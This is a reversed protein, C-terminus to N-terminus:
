LFECFVVRVCFGLTSFCWLSHKLKHFVFVLCSGLSFDVCLRHRGSLRQKRRVLGFQFRGERNLASDATVFECFICNKEVAGRIPGGVDPRWFSNGFYIAKNRFTPKVSGRRKRFRRIPMYKLAIARYIVFRHTKGEREAAEWNWKSLPLSKILMCVLRAEIGSNERALPRAHQHGTCTSNALPASPPSRGCGGGGEGEM